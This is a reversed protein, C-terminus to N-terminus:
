APRKRLLNKFTNKKALIGWLWILLRIFIFLATDIILRFLMKYLLSDPSEWFFSYLSDMIHAWFFHMSYRGVYILPKMMFGLKALVVSLCCFFLVGAAAPLFCLHLLPYKRDALELYSDAAFFIYLFSVAWIGMAAFGYLFWKKTLDVKKLYNGFALLPLIALVIDFSFPLFRLNCIGLISCVM